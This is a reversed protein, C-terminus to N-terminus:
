RLGCIKVKFKFWGIKFIEVFNEWKNEWKLFVVLCLIVFLM